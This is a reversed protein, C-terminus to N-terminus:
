PPGEQLFLTITTWAGVHIRDGDSVPVPVNVGIPDAADNLTTGNTSGPDVLSWAGDPRALLVAHLHSVGPDEPPASLDIEPLLARSTSRRGIRVQDGILPVRREPCYPPFALGAADPGMQAVVTDFYARDAAILASPGSPAPPPPGQQRAQAAPRPRVAQAAALQVTHLAGKEFDYGDAECFRGSRPNGCHPCTPAPAPDPAPAPTPEGFRARPAGDMLDGCVDCYDDAESTHGSPCVPM